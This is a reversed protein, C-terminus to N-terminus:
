TRTLRSVVVELRSSMMRTLARTADFDPPEGGAGSLVRGSRALRSSQFTRWARQSWAFGMRLFATPQRPPKPDEPSTSVFSMANMDQRRAATAVGSVVLKGEHRILDVPSAVCAPLSWNSHPALSLGDLWVCIPSYHGVLCFSWRGLWSSVAASHSNQSKACSAIHKEDGM